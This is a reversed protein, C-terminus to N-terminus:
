TTRKYSCVVIRADPVHQGERYGTIDHVLVLPQGRNFLDLGNFTGIAGAENGRSRATSSAVRWNM